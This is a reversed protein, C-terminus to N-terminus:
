SRPLSASSRLLLALPDYGSIGGRIKKKKVVGSRVGFTHNNKGMNALEGVLWVGVLM